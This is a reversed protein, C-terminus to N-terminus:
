VMPPYKPQKWRHNMHISLHVYTYLNALTVKQQWLLILPPVPSMFAYLHMSLADLGPSEQVSGQPTTETRERERKEERLRYMRVDAPGDPLAVAVFVWSAEEKSPSRGTQRWVTGLTEKVLLFYLCSDLLKQVAATLMVPQVDLCCQHVERSGGQEEEKRMDSWMNRRRGLEGVGERDGGGGGRWVDQHSSCPQLLALPQKFTPCCWFITSTRSLPHVADSSELLESSPGWFANIVDSQRLSM